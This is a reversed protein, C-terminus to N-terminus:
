NRLDSFLNEVTLSDTLKYILEGDDKVNFLYWQSNLLCVSNCVNSQIEDFHENGWLSIEVDSIYEFETQLAGNIFPTTDFHENTVSDVNWWHQVIETEDKDKDYKGVIWGSLPMSRTCGTKLVDSKQFEFTNSHCNNPEGIPVSKVSVKQLNYKSHRLREEILLRTAKYM